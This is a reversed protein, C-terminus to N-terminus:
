GHDRDEDGIGAERLQDAYDAPDADIPLDAIPLSTGEDGTEDGDERRQELYDEVPAEADVYERPETM